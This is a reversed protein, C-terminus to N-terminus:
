RDYVHWRRGNRDHYVLTGNADTETHPRRRDTETRLLRFSATSAEILAATMPQDSLVLVKRSQTRTAVDQRTEGAARRTSEGCAATPTRARCPSNVRTGRGFIDRAASAVSRAAPQGGGDRGGIIANSEPGM